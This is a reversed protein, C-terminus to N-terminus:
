EVRHLLYEVFDRTDPHLIMNNKNKEYWSIVQVKGTAALGAGIWDAVMEKVYKKPMRLATTEGRDWIVTWFQWHHPNRKQHRSWARGFEETERYGPTGDSSYFAKRYANWEDPLLKTWDHIIALWLPAGTIRSARLVFWKHRVIYRTYALHDKL